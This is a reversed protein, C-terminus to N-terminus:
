RPHRRRPSDALAPSGADSLGDTEASRLEHVLLRALYLDVLLPERAQIVTTLLYIRGPESYRGSRLHQAHPSSKNPM